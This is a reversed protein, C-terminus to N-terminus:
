NRGKKINNKITEWGSIIRKLTNLNYNEIPTGAPCVGCRTVEGMLENATVGSMEMLTKIENIAEEQEPTMNKTETKETVVEQATEPEIVEAVVPVTEKKVEVPSPIESIEITNEKIVKELEVPMAGKKYEMEEPLGFRNKADWCPHHTTRIVREGGVAKGKKSDKETVVFTKYNFFLVTDAWEKLLPCVTKACKLEWRDYAGMEDPQEFKRLMAHALFVIHMNTSEAFKTLRDLLSAWQEALYTYGKGYGWDEIGTKDGTSCIHKVIMKDLWDATDFVLTKYDGPNKKLYAMIENLEMYSSVSLRNVDMRETGGEFDFFLPNPWLSAFSTKGVGEPGYAVCKISKVKKGKTINLM